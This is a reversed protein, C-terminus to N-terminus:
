WEDRMMDAQDMEYCDRCIQTLSNYLSNLEASPLSLYDQIYSEIEHEQCYPCFKVDPENWPASPDNDAGLPYNSNSNM